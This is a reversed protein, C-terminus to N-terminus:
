DLSELQCFRELNVVRVDGSSPARVRHKSLVFHLTQRLKVGELLGLMPWLYSKTESV